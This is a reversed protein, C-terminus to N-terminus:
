DVEDLGAIPEYYPEGELTQVKRSWNDNALEPTFSWDQRAYNWSKPNLAQAAEWYHNAKEENGQRHFYVGLKFTPEALAQDETRPAVKLEGVPNLYASQEGKRVWDHVMPAYDTRGFEFGGLNHTTAYTGEDIRRVFGQEDIWVASPVNVLNYL